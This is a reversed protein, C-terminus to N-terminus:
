GGAFPLPLTRASCPLVPLLIHPVWLRLCFARAGVGRVDPLHLTNLLHPAPVHLTYTTHTPSGMAPHLPLGQGDQLLAKPSDWPFVHRDTRTPGVWPCHPLYHSSFPAPPPTGAGAPLPPAPFFTPELCDPLQIGPPQSTHEPPRGLDQFGARAASPGTASGTLTARRGPVIHTHPRADRHGMWGGCCCDGTSYDAQYAPPLPPPHPGPPLWTPSPTHAFTHPPARPGPTGSYPVM